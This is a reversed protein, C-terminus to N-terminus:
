FSYNDDEQKETKIEYEIEFGGNALLGELTQRLLDEVPSDSSKKGTGFLKKFFNM